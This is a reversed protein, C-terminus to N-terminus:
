STDDQKEERTEEQRGRCMQTSYRLFMPRSFTSQCSVSSVRHLPQFQPHSDPLSASEIGAKEQTFFLSTFSSGLPEFRPIFRDFYDPRLLVVNFNLIVCARVRKVQRPIMPISTLRMHSPPAKLVVGAAASLVSTTVSCFLENGLLALRATLSASTRFSTPEGWRKTIWFPWRRQSASVMAAALIGMSQPESRSTLSVSSLVMGASGGM